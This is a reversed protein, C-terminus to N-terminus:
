KENNEEEDYIKRYGTYLLILQFLLFLILYIHLMIPNTAFLIISTIDLGMCILLFKKSTDFDKIYLKIIGLINFILTIATIALHPIYGYKTIVFLFLLGSFLLNGLVALGLFYNFKISKNFDQEMDAEMLSYGKYGLILQFVMFIINWCLTIYEKYYIYGLSFLLNIIYVGLGIKVARKMDSRIGEFIFCAGLFLFTLIIVGWDNNSPPLIMTIFIYSVCAVVSSFFLYENKKLMVIDEEVNIDSIESYGKHILKLEYGIFFIAVLPYISFLSLVLAVIHILAGILIRRKEKLYCGTMVFLPAYFLCFFYIKDTIDPMYSLKFYSFIFFWVIGIIVSTLLSENIKTIKM